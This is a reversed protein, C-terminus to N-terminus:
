EFWGFHAAEGDGEEGTLGNGWVVVLACGLESWDERGGERLDGGVVGAGCVDAVPLPLLEDRAAADGVGVAVRGGGAAGVVALADAHAGADGGGLLVPLQPAPEAVHIGIRRNLRGLRLNSLLPKLTTYSANYKSM